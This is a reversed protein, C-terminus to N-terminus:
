PLRALDLRLIRTHECPRDTLTPNVPTYLVGDQITIYYPTLPDLPNYSDPILGSLDQWRGQTFDSWSRWRILRAPRTDQNMSWGVLFDNSGYYWDGSKRVDNLVLGTSALAGADFDLGASEPAIERQPVGHIKRLEFIRRCRDPLGAILERVRALERRAATVREPSPEDSYISLSDIETAAEIRIIRSRRMQETLLNRVIQFFYADPREIHDISDLAAMRAYAEQILDDIDDPSALSRRLWARVGGEYPMVHAGVWAVVRRRHDEM